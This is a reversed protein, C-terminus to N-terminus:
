LGLALRSLRDKIVTPTLRDGAALLQADYGVIYRARPSRADLARTIVKAVQGPDGM